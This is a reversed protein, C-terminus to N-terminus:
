EKPGFRSLAILALAVVTIALAFLFSDSPATWEVL